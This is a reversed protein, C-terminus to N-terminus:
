EDYQDLLNCLRNFEDIDEVSLLEVNDTGDIKKVELIYSDTENSLDNAIVYKKNNYDFQNVIEVKVKEGDAATMEVVLENNEMTIYENFLNKKEEINPNIKIKNYENLLDFYEKKLSDYEFQIKNFNNELNKYNQILENIIKNYNDINEIKNKNFQNNENLESNKNVEKKNKNNEDNNLINYYKHSNIINSSNNKGIIKHKEELSDDYRINFDTENNIHCFM